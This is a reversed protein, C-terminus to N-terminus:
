VYIISFLSNNWNTSLMLSLSIMSWIYYFIRLTPYCLFFWIIGFAVYSITEYALNYCFWTSFAIHHRLSIFCYMVVYFLTKQFSPCDIDCPNSPYITVVGLLYLPQCPYTNVFNSLLWELEGKELQLVLVLCTWSSQSINVCYKSLLVM